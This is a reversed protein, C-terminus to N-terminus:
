RATGEFVDEIRVGPPPQHRQELEVVDVDGVGGALAVDRRHAPDGEVDVGPLRQPDGALGAAALRRERAGHEAQQRLGRRDGTPDAEVALVDHLHGEASSRATRQPSAATTKWPAICASLGTCRM